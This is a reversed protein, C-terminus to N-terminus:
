SCFDSWTSDSSRYNVEERFSLKSQGQQGMRAILREAAAMAASLRTVLPRINEAERYTPVIISARGPRRLQDTRVQDM